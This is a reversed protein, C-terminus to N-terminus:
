TLSSRSRWGCKPFEGPSTARFRNISDNCSFCPSSPSRSFFAILYVERQGEGDTQGAVGRRLAPRAFRCVQRHSTPFGLGTNLHRVKPGEIAVRPSVFRAAGDYPACPM